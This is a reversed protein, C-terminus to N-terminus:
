FEKSITFRYIAESPVARRKKDSFWLWVVRSFVRLLTCMTHTDRWVRWRNDVRVCARARLCVCVFVFSALM